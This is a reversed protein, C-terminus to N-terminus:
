EPFVPQTWARHGDSCNVRARVYGEDGKFEYVPHLGEQQKLVKGGRGIFSTLFHIEGWPKIRLSLKAKEVLVDELLIRTTAYFDGAKLSAILAAQTLSAARVVVWGSAPPDRHPNFPLIKYSHCDDSAAGWIRIGQSLLEDWMAETSPRSPSGESNCTYSGNFLEFLHAGGAQAMEAAGFAWCWNPHNLMCLADQLKCQEVGRRLADLVSSAPEVLVPRNLGIGNVHVPIDNFGSTYESSPLVLFKPGLDGGESPQTLHNHDTLAVFDFGMDRYFGAVVAPTSDGDSNTTHCHLNGQYWNM